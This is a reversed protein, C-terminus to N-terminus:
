IHRIYVKRIHKGETEESINEKGPDYELENVCCTDRTGAKSLLTM